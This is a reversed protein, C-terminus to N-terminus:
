KKPMLAFLLGVIVVGGIVMPTSIGGITSTGISTPLAASGPTSYTISGDANRTYTTTPALIKSATGAFTNALSAMLNSFPNSGAAPAPASGPVCAGNSAMYYGPGFQSCAAGGAASAPPASGGPSYSTGPIVPNGPIASGAAANYAANPDTSTTGTDTCDGLEDCVVDGFGGRMHYGHLGTFGRLLSRADDSISRGGSDWVQMRYIDRDPVHWGPYKGHSADLDLRRGHTVIARCYVHNFIRPQDRETAVTVIEWGVGNVELLACVMMTYIACDGEMRHTPDNLLVDPPILLQLDDVGWFEALQKSHHVFRLNEKAFSWAHDAIMAPFYPAKGVARVAPDKASRHIHEVMIQVTQATAVDPNDSVPIRKVGDLFERSMIPPNALTSM